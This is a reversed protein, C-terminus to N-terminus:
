DQLRGRALGGHCASDGTQRRRGGASPRCDLGGLAEEFLYNLDTRSGLGALYPEYKKEDAQLDLGHFGPDYFFDRELRFGERYMQKWEAIPDVRVEMADLKLVQVGPRAVAPAGAVGAPATAGSTAPAATTTAIIWQAPAPPVAAAAAAAAPGMGGVRYLMKEGNASIAFFSAGDILRDTKRTKLDFKYATLRGM